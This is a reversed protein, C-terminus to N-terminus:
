LSADCDGESGNALQELVKLRDQSVVFLRVSGHRGRVRRQEALKWSENNLLHSLEHRTIKDESFAMAELLANFKFWVAGQEDKGLSRVTAADFGDRPPQARQFWELIRQAITIHRREELPSELWKAVKLLKAKLATTVRAKGTAPDKIKAGNWVGPWFGPKYNLCVTGTEALVRRHVDVPTDFENLTMEVFKRPLFPAYLRARRPDSNLLEVRWEGPYWENDKFELGLSTLKPTEDRQHEQKCIFTRGGDCKDRVQSDDLPPKCKARNFSWLREFVTVECEPSDFCGLGHLKLQERWLACSEAYLTDDREGEHLEKFEYLKKRVSPKREQQAANTGLGLSNHLWAVFADPLEAVSCVAPSLGPIWLYKGFSPPFVSGSGKDGSGLKLDADIGFQRLNINAQQPLDDRWRFLRHPTNKTGSKFSCTIPIEGGFAAILLPEHDINDLDLDIIGSRPGLVGFVGYEKYKRTWWEGIIEEDTTAVRQWELIGKPHKAGPAVPVVRWGYSAYELAASLILDSAVAM